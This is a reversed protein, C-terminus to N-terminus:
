LVFIRLLVLTYRVEAPYKETDLTVRAKKGESLMQATIVVDNSLPFANIGRAHLLSVHVNIRRRFDNWERRERPTWALESVALLRPFIM